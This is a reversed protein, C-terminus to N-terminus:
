AERRVTVMVCISSTPTVIVIGYNGLQDPRAWNSCGGGGVKATLAEAVGELEDALEQQAVLEAEDSAQWRVRAWGRM